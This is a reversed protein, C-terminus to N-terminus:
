PLVPVAERAAPGARIEVFLAHSAIGCWGPRGETWAGQASTTADVGCTYARPRWCGASVPPPSEAAEVKESPLSRTKLSDAEAFPHCLFPPPAPDPWRLGPRRCFRTRNWLNM